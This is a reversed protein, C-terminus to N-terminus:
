DEQSENEPDHQGEPGSRHHIRGARKEHRVQWIARRRRGLRGRKRATVRRHEEGEGDTQPRDRPREAEDGTQVAEEDDTEGAHVESPM